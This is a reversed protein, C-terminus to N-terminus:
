ITQRDRKPIGFIVAFCKTNNKTVKSATSTCLTKTENKVINWVMRSKELPTDLQTCDKNNLQKIDSDNTEKSNNKM